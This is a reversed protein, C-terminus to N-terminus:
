GNPQKPTDALDSTYIAVGPSDKPIQMSADPTRNGSSNPEPQLVEVTWIPAVSGSSARQNGLPRSAVLLLSLFVLRNVIGQPKRVLSCLEAM